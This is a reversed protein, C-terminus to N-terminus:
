LLNCKKWGLAEFIHCLTGRRSQIKWWLTEDCDELTFCVGPGKTSRLHLLVLLSRATGWFNLLVFQIRLRRRALGLLLLCSFFFIFLYFLPFPFFCDHFAHFYNTAGFPLGHSGGSCIFVYLSITLFYYMVFRFKWM